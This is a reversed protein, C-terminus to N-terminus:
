RAEPGSQGEDEDMMRPFCFRLMMVFVGSTHLGLNLGAPEHLVEASTLSGGGGAGWGGGGQGGVWCSFGLVSHSVTGRDALYMQDQVQLKRSRREPLWFTGDAQVFSLVFPNFFM